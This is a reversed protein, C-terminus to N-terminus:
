GLIKPFLDKLDREGKKKLSEVRIDKAIVRSQIYHTTYKSKRILNSKKQAM